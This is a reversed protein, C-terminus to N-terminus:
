GLMGNSEGPSHMHALQLLPIDQRAVEPPQSHKVGHVAKLEKANDYERDKQPGKTKILCGDDKGNGM